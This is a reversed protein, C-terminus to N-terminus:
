WGRRILAQEREYGDPTEGEPLVATSCDCDNRNVADELLKAAELTPAEDVVLWQAVDGFDPRKWVKFKV